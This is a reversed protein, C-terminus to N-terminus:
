ALENSITTALPGRERDIDTWEHWVLTLVAAKVNTPGGEVMRVSADRIKLHSDTKTNGEYHAVKYGAVALADIVCSADWHAQKRKERYFVIACVAERKSQGASGTIRDYQIPTVYISPTVFDSPVEDDYVKQYKLEGSRANLVSQIYRLISSQRPNM